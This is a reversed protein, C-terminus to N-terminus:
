QDLGSELSVAAKKPGLRISQEFAFAVAGSLDRNDLALYSYHRIFHEGGWETGAPPVYGHGVFVSTPLIEVKEMVLAKTLLKERADSYHTYLRLGLTADLHARVESTAIFFYAPSEGDRVAFNNHGTQAKDIGGDAATKSWNQSRQLASSRERGPESGGCALCALRERCRSDTGGM